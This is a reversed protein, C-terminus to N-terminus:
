CTKLRVGVDRTELRILERIGAGLNEVPIINPSRNGYDGNRNWPQQVLFLIVASNGNQKILEEAVPNGDDILIDYGSHIKEESSKVIRINLGSDPFNLKLWDTLHSRHDVWVMRQTLIDVDYRKMLEFLLEQSVAPKIDRWNRTWIEDHMRFFDDRSIPIRWDSWDTIDELTYNKGFRRNYEAIYTNHFLALTGDIDLGVKKRRKASDMRLMGELNM